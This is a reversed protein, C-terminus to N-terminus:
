SQFALTQSMSYMIGVPGVAHSVLLNPSELSQSPSTSFRKVFSSGGVFMVIQHAVSVMLEENRMKIIFKSIRTRQCPDGLLELLPNGRWCHRGRDGNERCPNNGRRTFPLSKTLNLAPRFRRATPMKGSPPAVVVQPLSMRSNKRGM